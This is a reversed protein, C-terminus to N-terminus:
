FPSKYRSQHSDRRTGALRQLDGCTETVRLSDRHSKMLRQLDRHTEALYDRQTDISFLSVVTSQSSATITSSSVTSVSSPPRQHRRPRSSTVNYLEPYLYSATLAENHDLSCGGNDYIGHLPHQGPTTASAVATSTGVPFFSFSFHSMSSM